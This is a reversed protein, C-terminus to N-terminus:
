KLTEFLESLEDSKFETVTDCERVNDSILHNFMYLIREREMTNIVTSNKGRPLNCEIPEVNEDLTDGNNVYRVVSSTDFSDIMNPWKRIAAVWERNIGCGFAHITKDNGIHKRLKFCEQIQKEISQKSIGGVGIIIDSMNIGYKRILYELEDYHETRSKREDSQTPIIIDREWDYHNEIMDIVAETTAKTDYLVDKPVVVDANIDKASEMVNKNEYADSGIGSDMIYMDAKESLTPSREEPRGLVYPYELMATNTATVVKVPSADIIEERYYKQGATM